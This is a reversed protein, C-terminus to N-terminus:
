KIYSNQYNEWHVRSVDYREIADKEKVAYGLTIIGLPMVHEPLGFLEKMGAVREERPYIGLWLSGLGLEAAAILMNQMVASMDQIWWGEGPYVERELDACVLIGIPATDLATAYEHVEKVKQKIVSNEFLIFEWEQANGATPAAMGARLVKEVMEESVPESTYKRISRRKFIADM